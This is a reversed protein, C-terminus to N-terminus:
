QTQILEARPATSRPLPCVDAALFGDPALGATLNIRARYQEWGIVSVLEVIQETDFHMRLRALLADDIIAPTRSMAQALAIVARETTSFTRAREFDSLGHLDEVTLGRGLGVFSGIDLCYRCGIERAAALNALAHCRAPVRKAGQLSNEMMVAGFFIRRHHAWVAMSSPTRGFMRRAFFFVLRQFLGRPGIGEIRSM